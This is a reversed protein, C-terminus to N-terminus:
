TTRRSNELATEAETARTRMRRLESEAHSVVGAAEMRVTEAEATTKRAEAQARRMNAELQRNLRRLSDGERKEAVVEAKLREVDAKAADRLMDIEAKLRAVEDGLHEDAVAREAARAALEAEEVLGPWGPPRVLYALAAVDRPDAAAPLIGANLASVVDPFADRVRDAIRGRFVEDAEVAAALPTAALRARKAPTFKAFPRLTPPLQSQPLQGATEAALSVVRQRIAEHLPAALRAAEGEWISGAAPDADHAGGPGSGSGDAASLATGYPDDGVSPPAPAPTHPPPEPPPVGPGPVPRELEEGGM